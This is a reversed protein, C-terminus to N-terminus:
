TVGRWASTSVWLYGVLVGLPAAGEVATPFPAYYIAALAAALGGLLPVLTVRGGVGTTAFWRALRVLPWAFAVVIAALGAVGATVAAWLYYNHVYAQGVGKPLPDYPVRPRYRAGLGKGTLPSERIADVAHRNELSRFTASPDGERQEGSLLQLVRGHYATLQRRLPNDGRGVAMDALTVVAFTTAALLLMVALLRAGSRGIRGTRVAWALCVMMSVAIALLSHRSFSLFTLLSAPVGFWLAASRPRIGRPRLLVYGLVVCFAILAVRTPAFQFRLAGYDERRGGSLTAVETLTGGVLRAGTLVTVLAAAVSLWLVVCTARVLTSRLKQDKAAAGGIVVGLVIHVLGRSFGLVDAPENGWAAAGILGIVLMAVLVSVPVALPSMRPRLRYASLAALPLLLDVAYFTGGLASVRLPVSEPWPILLVLVAVYFVVTSSRLLLVLGLLAMAAGFPLFAPASYLGLLGGVVVGCALWLGLVLGRSSRVTALVGVVDKGTSPAFSPTPERQEPAEVAGAM